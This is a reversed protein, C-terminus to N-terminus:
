VNVDVVVSGSTSSGRVISQSMAPVGLLPLETVSVKAVGPGRVILMVAVSVSAPSPVTSAMGAVGCVTVTPLPPLGFPAKEAPGLGAWGPSVTV